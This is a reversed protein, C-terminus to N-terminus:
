GKKSQFEKTAIVLDESPKIRNIGKYVIPKEVSLFQGWNLLTSVKYSSAEPEATAETALLHSVFAISGPDSKLENSFATKLQASEPMPIKKLKVGNAIAEKCYVLKEYYISGDEPVFQLGYGEVCNEAFKFKGPPDTKGLNRNKGDPPLGNVYCAVPQNTDADTIAIPQESQSHAVAHSLLVALSASAILRIRLRSKM